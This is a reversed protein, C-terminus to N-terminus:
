GEMYKMAAKKLIGSTGLSRVIVPKGEVEKILSLAARLPDVFRHNVRVIGRNNKYKDKIFILGAGALGLEGMFHRAAKVITRVALTQSIASGLIEFVVYRKRERLSPLLPKIHKM